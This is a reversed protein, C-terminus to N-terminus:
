NSDARRGMQIIRDNAPIETQVELDGDVGVHGISNSRYNAAHSLAFVHADGLRCEAQKSDMVVLTRGIKGLQFVRDLEGLGCRGGACSAFRVTGASRCDFENGFAHLRRYLGIVQGALHKKLAPHSASRAASGRHRLARTLM